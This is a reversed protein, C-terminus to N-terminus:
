RAAPKKDENLYAAYTHCQKVCKGCGICLDDNVVSLFNTVNAIPIIMNDIRQRLLMPLLQLYKNWGQQYWFESSLSQACARRGRGAKFGEISWGELDDEFFGAGIYIKGIQRFYFLKGKWGDTQLPEPCTKIIDAFVIDWLSKM